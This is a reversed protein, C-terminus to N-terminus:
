NRFGLVRFGSGRFGLEPGKSSNYPDAGPNKTTFSLAGSEAKTASSNRPTRSLPQSDLTSMRDHPHSDPVVPSPITSTGICSYCFM